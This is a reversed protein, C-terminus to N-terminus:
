MGKDINNHKTCREECVNIIHEIDDTIQFLDIQWQEIFGAKIADTRLWDVLGKWYEIGVLIIPAISIEKTYMLTIVEMLEDLTGFGGPFVIFAESSNVMLWKRAFLYDLIFFEEVCENREEKLSWVGIGIIKAKKEKSPLICSAARMIGPGGGTIVSINKAVLKSSVEQAIKAYRDEPQLHAGGFIAVIPRTIKGIKFAGYITQWSVRTLKWFLLNGQWLRKFITM